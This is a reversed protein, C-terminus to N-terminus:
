SSMVKKKENVKAALDILAEYVIDGSKFERYPRIMNGYHDIRNFSVEDPAGDFEYRCIVYKHGNYRRETESCIFDERQVWKVSGDNTARNLMEIFQVSLMM